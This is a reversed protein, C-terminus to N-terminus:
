RRNGRRPSHTKGFLERITSTALYLHSADDQLAVFGYHEYFATAHDSIAEVEVAHIGAEESCRWSRHLADALLYGGLGMGAYRTDVALRGLRVVPVPLDKPLKKRAMDPLTAPQISGNSLAYYGLVDQQGVPVVVYTRGINRAEYQRAYKQLYEDLAPVGCSFAKRKHDKRIPEIVRSPPSEGM